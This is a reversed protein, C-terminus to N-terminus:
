HAGPPTSRGKNNAPPTTVPKRGPHAKQTQPCFSSDQGRSTGPVTNQALCLRDKMGAADKGFLLQTRENGSAPDLDYRYLFDEAAKQNGYDLHNWTGVSQRGISDSLLAYVQTLTVGPAPNAAWVPVAKGSRMWRAAWTHQRLDYYFATFFTTADCNSCDDYLVGLERPSGTAFLMWDLFRLNAGQVIPTLARNALSISWISFTDENGPSQPNARLTAIVLAADYQVGIERIATWKEGDLARTIWVVVDQDKPSHFDIWRFSTPAQAPLKLPLASLVILCFAFRLRVCCRM